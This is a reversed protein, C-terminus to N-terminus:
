IAINSNTNNSNRRIGASILIGKNKLFTSKIKNKAVKKNHM